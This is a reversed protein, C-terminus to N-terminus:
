NCVFNLDSNLKREMEMQWIAILFRLYFIFSKLLYMEKKDNDNTDKTTTAYFSGRTQAMNNIHYQM